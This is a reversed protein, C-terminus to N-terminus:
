ACRAEWLRALAAWESLALEQPRRTPEIGARILLEAAEETTIGLGAALTNRLQKRPTAFAARAVEFVAATSGVAARLGPVVDLRVVASQVRPPPYFASPPVTFLVRPTAYLQVSIGLLSMRGPRAAMSQAVERQLMVVLRDPQPDSELFHRVIAAAINYPLNGAVAYPPSLAATALIDAPTVKLVDGCLLSFRDESAFRRRLHECLGRDIEVAAVRAGRQILAATLGGLGPGVEVVTGGPVIDLADAIRQFM